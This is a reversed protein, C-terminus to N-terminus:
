PKGEPCRAYTPQLQTVATLWLKTLVEERVSGGKRSMMTCRRAESIADFEYWFCTGVIHTLECDIVTALRLTGETSSTPMRNAFAVPQAHRDHSEWSAGSM